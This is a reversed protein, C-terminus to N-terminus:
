ALTTDLCWEAVGLQESAGVDDLLGVLDACLTLVDYSEVM